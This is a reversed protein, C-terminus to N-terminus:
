YLLMYQLRRRAYSMVHVKDRDGKKNHFQWERWSHAGFVVIRQRYILVLTRDQDADASVVTIRHIPCDGKREVPLYFSFGSAPNRPMPHITDPSDGDFISERRLQLLFYIIRELKFRTLDSNDVKLSNFALYPYRYM